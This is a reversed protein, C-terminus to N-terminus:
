LKSKKENQKFKFTFYIGILGLAIIGILSVTDNASM